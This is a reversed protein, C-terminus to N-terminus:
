LILLASFACNLAQLIVHSELSYVGWYRFVAAALYPYAPAFWATPGTTVHLLPSSFGRGEAIASAVRGVENGYPLLAGGLHGRWSFYLAILRVGLAVATISVPSFALLKFWARANMRNM